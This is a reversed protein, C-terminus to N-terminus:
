EQQMQWATGDRVMANLRILLLRMCAVVAVKGCKGRERLDKYRCKLDAQTHIASWTAMYLVRRVSARGGYIRRKGQKNGSDVNYPAVGVLAAIERRELQGLEPLFAILTAITVPGVGPVADLQRALTADTDAVAQAIAKDLRAIDTMLSRLQRKLSAIVLKGCAQPLRRREDDRQQVLQVRRHVLGQLLRQQASEVRVLPAEIVEALHALMAADIPDTKARRGMATAFARARNPAVRVVPWTAALATMVAREYGGTAELVIKEVALAQLRQVLARHGAADNSVEFQEATPRVAVVLAAKAVDIGIFVSM